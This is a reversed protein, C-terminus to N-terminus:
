AAKLISIGCGTVPAANKIPSVPLPRGNHM